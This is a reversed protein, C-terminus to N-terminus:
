FLSTRNIYAERAAVAEDEDLYRGIYIYKGGKIVYAVFKGSNFSIGRHKSHKGEVPLQKSSNESISLLQLNERRNDLKNNNIHDVTMHKPLVVQYWRRVIFRHLLLRGLPSGVYHYGEGQPYYSMDLIDKDEESLLIGYKGVVYSM